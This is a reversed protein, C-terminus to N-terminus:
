FNYDHFKRPAESIVFREGYKNKWRLNPTGDYKTGVKNLRIKIVPNETNSAYDYEQADQNSCHASFGGVHFKLETKNEGTDM